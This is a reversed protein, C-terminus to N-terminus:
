SCLGGAASGPWGVQVSLELGLSVQDEVDEDVSSVGKVHTETSPVEPRM